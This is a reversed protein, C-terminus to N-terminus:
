RKNSAAILGEAIGVYVMAKVCGEVEADALALAESRLGHTTQNAAIRRFVRAKADSRERPILQTTERAASVDGRDVQFEAIAALASGKYWEEAIADQVNKLAGSMDGAKAQAVVVEEQAPGSWVKDQISHAVELLGQISQGAGVQIETIRGLLEGKSYDSMSRSADLAANSDGTKALALCLPPLADDRSTQDLRRVTNFAEALHVEAKEKERRQTYAEFLTALAEVKQPLFPCARAVSSAEELTSQAGVTDGAKSQGDAIERLASVKEDHFLIRRATQIADPLLGSTTQIAAIERLAASILVPNDLTSAMQLAGDLNGSRAPVAIIARIAERMSDPETISLVTKLAEVLGLIQAEAQAAAIEALLYAKQYNSSSSQAVQVASDFTNKAANKDGIKAQAAAVGCMSRAKPLVERILRATTLAAEDDGAKAQAIAVDRLVFDRASQDAISRTLELARTLLALPESVKAPKHPRFINKLWRFM